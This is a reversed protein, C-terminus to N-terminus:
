FSWKFVKLKFIYSFRRVRRRGGESTKEVEFVYYNFDDKVRFSIGARAESRL